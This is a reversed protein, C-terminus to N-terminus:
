ADTAQGASSTNLQESTRGFRRERGQYSSIAGALAAADFDPWLVDTFIMEAYASQWLLFNSLRLEGSTRILLDLPPLEASDLHREISEVTIEGEAAAATAARAIEQLLGYRM